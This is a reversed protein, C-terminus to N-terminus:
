DYISMSVQWVSIAEDVNLDLNHNIFSKLGQCARSRHQAHAYTQSRTARCVADGVFATPIALLQVKIVDAGQDALIQTTLVHM